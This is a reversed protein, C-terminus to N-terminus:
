EKPLIVSIACREPRLYARLFDEVDSKEISRFVEDFRFFEEGEFCHGCSRVCLEEFSDLSRLLRGMAAKKQRRFLTEDIGEESVRRAQALIREAVADPDRSDGGATFMCIKKLGEYGASFSSDILGSEYLERYFPTSSGLLCDAALDGIMEARMQSQAMDAKFGMVFTPLAIEMRETVRSQM